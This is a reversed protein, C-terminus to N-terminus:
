PLMRLLTNIPSAIGGPPTHEPNYWLRPKTTMLDKEIVTLLLPTIQLEYHTFQHVLLSWKEIDILECAFEQLCHERLNHLDLLEPFSWLGGWIGQSPRKELLLEGCSNQLMLCYTQKIPKTKKPKKGPFLLETAHKHAICEKELPCQTCKPKTRTCIMSGLDMMAQNYQHTNKTPTFKETLAWLKKLVRSEGPWGDIAFCRALVRKVNGDLIPAPIQMGLSLIAGATSRGIGPLTSLAEVTKPFEGAHDEMLCHAAKHLNRARAYYGLGSWHALVDDTSAQSLKQLTPFSKMFRNFYPIVTGVQTQQLM